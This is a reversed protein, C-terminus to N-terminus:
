PAAGLAPLVTDRIKRDSLNTQNWVERVPQM